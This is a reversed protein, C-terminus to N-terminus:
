FTKLLSHLLGAFGELHVPIRDPVSEGIRFKRVVVLRGCIRRPRAGYLKQVAIELLTRDSSAKGESM